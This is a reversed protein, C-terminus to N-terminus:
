SDGGVQEDFCYRCLSYGSGSQDCDCPPRLGAEHCASCLMGRSSAWSGLGLAGCDVCHRAERNFPPPADGEGDGDGDGDDGLGLDVTPALGQDVLGRALHLAEELAEFEVSVTFRQPEIM